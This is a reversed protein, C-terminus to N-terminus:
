REDEFASLSLASDSWPADNRTVGARVMAAGSEEDYTVLLSHDLGDRVDDIHTIVIVQEFRDHLRRLLAVVHQRRVDDLSGFVEDLVLLSFAQGAREAIMQSIALRLVLNALDEEGGSIVPKPLGDEYVELRYDEDLDVRDYRGDTLEALFGSAISALEPRLAHNLDTRLDTYARDLEDHLRKDSSLATLRTELRELDRRSRAVSELEARIGTVDGRATLAEREAARATATAADYRARLADFEDASWRLGAHQEAIVQLRDTAVSLAREAASREQAVVAFRDVSAGLRAAERELQRLRAVEREVAAHTSKDYGTPLAAVERALQERRVRKAERDRMLQEREQMGAQIRALRRELTTLETAIAKREVELEAVDDPTARLQDARARFFTGDVRITEDRADLDDLVAQWSEALPRGCTPCPSDAGLASLRDRQQKIDVFQQRLAELRTDVEQRDRVWDTRRQELREELAAAAARRETLEAIADAELSPATELKAARDDLRVLEDEAARLADLLTSRRGEAQAQEALQQLTEQQAPLAALALTLPALSERAADIAALERACRDIERRAASQDREALERAQELAQARERRLQVASWEPTLTDLEKATAAAREDAEHLRASAADLREEADRLMRAVADPDPMGQKVGAIEGVLARRKERALERAASLREYGLVRSLFQAREAAGMTRMGDLEKQGTFYTNFFEDRTMGLRQSVLDTVGTITTAVPATAEDLHCEASTLGRTIRYRHGALHFVLTVRVAEGKPAGTFRISDRTGRAAANGYLAWAIAELITSKGAGNPGIIGTLGTAFRISTRAHQRFNQLDLQELRV